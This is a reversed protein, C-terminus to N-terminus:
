VRGDDRYVIAVAEDVVALRQKQVGRQATIFQMLGDAERFVLNLRRDGIPLNDLRLEGIGLPLRPARM